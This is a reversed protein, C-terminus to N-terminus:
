AINQQHRKKDPGMTVIFNDLDIKEGAFVQAIPDHLNSPNITMWLSPPGMWLNTLWIKSCLQQCSIDSGKVRGCMAILHKKM